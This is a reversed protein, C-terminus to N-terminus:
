IFSNLVCDKELCPFYITSFPWQRLHWFISLLSVFATKVFSVYSHMTNEETMPQLAAEEEGPTDYDELLHPHISPWGPCFGLCSQLPTVHTPTHLPRSQSYLHILCLNASLIQLNQRWACVTVRMISNLVPLICPFCPFDWRRMLLRKNLFLLNHCWIQMNLFIQFFSM